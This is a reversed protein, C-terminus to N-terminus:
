SSHTKLYRAGKKTLLLEGLGEEIMGKKILSDCMDDSMIKQKGVKKTLERLAEMEAPTLVDKQAM